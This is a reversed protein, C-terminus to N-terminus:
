VAARAPMPSPISFFAHSDLFGHDRAYRMLDLKSHLGLKHFINFRHKAVTEASINLRHGIEEDSLFAGLLCLITIERASLMKDFANPDSHRSARKELFNQSWYNQGGTVTKLARGLVLTTTGLKDLFGQVQAHEVLSVTLDTCYASILMVYRPCCTAERLIELVRFGGFDPLNLDLLLVDPKTKMVEIIASKGCDAEGVVEYGAEIVCFDRLFGRMLRHDDVIVIRM